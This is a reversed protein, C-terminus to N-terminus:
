NEKVRQHRPRSGRIGWGWALGPPEQVGERRVETEEEVVREAM